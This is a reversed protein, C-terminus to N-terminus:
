FFIVRASLEGCNIFNELFSPKVVEDINFSNVRYYDCYTLDAGFTDPLNWIDPLIVTVQFSLLRYYLNLISIWNRVSHVFSFKCIKKLCKDKEIKESRYISPPAPFNFTAPSLM